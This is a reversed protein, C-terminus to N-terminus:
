KHCVVQVISNKTEDVVDAVEKKKNSMKVEYDISNIDLIMKAVSSKIALNVNQVSRGSLTKELRSYVVGVINGSSDLLPGGSNGPQIPASMQLNTTDNVLGTLASVNGTTLKIGSGLLVGLPYGLVSINEGIRIGKGARFSLSSSNKSDAKLIALDNRIDNAVLQAKSKYGNRILEIESCEEVVHHNTVLYTLNVFFGTGTTDEPADQKSVSPPVSTSEAKIPVIFRDVMYAQQDKNNGFSPVTIDRGQKRNKGVQLVGRANVILGDIDTPTNIEITFTRKTGKSWKKEWGEVMFYQSAINRKKTRHYLKDPPMYADVSDFTNKITKGSLFKMQPFSLTLGGNRAYGYGNYMTAKVTFSSGSRVFKPYELTIKIGNEKIVHYSSNQAAFAHISGLFILLVLYTAKKM